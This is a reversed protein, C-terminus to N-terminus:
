AVYRSLNIAANYDRDIVAGCRDCKYTRDSLKLNSKLSGCCSCTKSSPYFRGVQIFKIGNWECKYRMQRIFEHFCQEQIAKSLHRNKMMGAVNLNEMIVASPLRSVLAHTCQHIYNTRINSIRTYLRRLKDEERAINNTKVYRKGIRNAEYKRSISRQLHKLRKKLARVKQSKNINHFVIKEGSFEAIALDKVGLDIGMRKDTLQPAQNECEMGFSLLWKGNVNSIRPNSFKHGRGFPIDFDTKYRVKGIKEVTVDHDSFWITERVPFAPKSRKRSKFKPFGSRKRFFGDYAKGLDQCVYKLSSNSVGYLWDHEGDNKLPTLRKIMSFASLHKEGVEHSKQQYDLMYNWIFRCAGIHKWMLREQQVTPYLRIKFSKIMATEGGRM